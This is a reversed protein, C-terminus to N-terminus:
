DSHIEIFQKYNNIASPGDIIIELIINKYPYWWYSFSSFYAWILLIFFSYIIIMLYIFYDSKNTSKFLDPMRTLVFVQIPIFILAIRDILATSPVFPLICFAFISLWAMWKWISTNKVDKFLKKHFILLLISPLVNMFGRVYAGSSSYSISNFNHLIDMIIDRFFVYFPYSFILLSLGLLLMYKKSKFFNFHIFGFPLMLLASFHFTFGVFILLYYKFYNFKELQTLAVMFIALALSQRNYGMGVVTIFYPYLIILGLWPRPNNKCFKILSLIFIIGLILNVLYPTGNYHAVLKNILVFSIDKIMTIINLETVLGDSFPKDPNYYSNIYNGFDGGVSDRLGVFIILIFSISIWSYKDKNKVVTNNSSDDNVLAFLTIILFVFFYLLM